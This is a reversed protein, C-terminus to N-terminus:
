TGCRCTPSTCGPDAARRHVAHVGDVLVQPLENLAAEHVRWDYGDRWHGLLDRLFGPDTGRDWGVGRVEAPWRTRALRERLDDLVADPVEIRFPTM